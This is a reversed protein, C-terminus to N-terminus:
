GNPWRATPRTTTRAASCITTSGRRTPRRCIWTPPRRGRVRWRLEVRGRALVRARVPGRGPHAVERDAAYNDKGGLLYDYIRATNPTTLDVDAPSWGEDAM